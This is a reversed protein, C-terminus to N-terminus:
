RTSFGNNSTALKPLALTCCALTSDRISQAYVDISALVNLTVLELTRLVKNKSTNFCTYWKEQVKLHPLKSDPSPQVESTPLALSIPTFCSPPKLFSSMRPKLLAYGLYPLLSSMRVLPYNMWLYCM